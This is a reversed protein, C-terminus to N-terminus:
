KKAAQYYPNAGQAHNTSDIVDHIEAFRDLLAVRVGQSRRRDRLPQAHAVV